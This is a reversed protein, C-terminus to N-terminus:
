EAARRQGKLPPATRQRRPAPGRARPLFHRAPPSPLARRPSSHFPPAPPAGLRGLRAPPAAPRRRESGSRAQGGGWAPGARFGRRGAGAGCGSPAPAPRHAAGPAPQRRQGRQEPQRQGRQGARGAGRRPCLQPHPHPQGAPLHRLLAQLGIAAGVADAQLQARGVTGEDGEGGVESLYPEPEPKQGVDRGLAPCSGGGAGAGRSRCGWRARHSAPPTGLSARSEGLLVHASSGASREQDRPWSPLLPPFARLTNQADRTGRHNGASSCILSQLM